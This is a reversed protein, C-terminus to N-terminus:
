GAKKMNMYHERQKKDLREIAYRLATRPMTAAYKDLFSLLRQGDKKGAERLWGGVAKHILDEKDNILMEAIKFTDDIEGKRIFYFTSVIATRREWMNKSRALKYLVARPKDFLYGGVVYPASRDVLDWNNIRDHRKVYLDFLKKRREESIKKSRAQWDMISVAGVRVEHIPSDLLKEIEAPPMEMFEKALAFIQGMRVGIFKDGEAYQGEGSKFYRQIKKLEEASRLAELKKVFQKASYDAPMVSKGENKNLSSARKM